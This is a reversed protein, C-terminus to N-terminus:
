DTLVAATSWSRLVPRIREQLNRQRDSIAHHEVFGGPIRRHEFRITTAGHRSDIQEETERFTGGFLAGLFITEAGRETLRVLASADDSVVLLAPGGTTEVVLPVGETMELTLRELTRQLARDADWPFDNSRGASRWADALLRQLEDADLTEGSM